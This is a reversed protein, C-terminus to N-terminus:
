SEHPLSITIVPEMNDGPGCNAKITELSRRGNKVILVQFTLDQGGRRAAMRFMTLVDWLRGAVDQGRKADKESPTVLDAWLAVTMAVPFRIGAERATASVDILVGDEIAQARSYSSIVEGFLDTMTPSSM